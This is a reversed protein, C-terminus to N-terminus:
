FPALVSYRVKRRGAAVGEDLLIMQTSKKEDIV